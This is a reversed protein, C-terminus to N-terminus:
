DAANSRSKPGLSVARLEKGVEGNREAKRIEIRRKLKEQAKEKRDKQYVEGRKLANKIKHDKAM